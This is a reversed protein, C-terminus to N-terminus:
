SLGPAVAALKVSTTSSGAQRARVRPQANAVRELVSIADRPIVVENHPERLTRCDPTTRM